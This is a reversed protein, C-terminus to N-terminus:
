KIRLYFLKEDIKPLEALAPLGFNKVAVRYNYVTTSDYNYATIPQINLYSLGLMSLRDVMRNLYNQLGQIQKSYGIIKRDKLWMPYQSKHMIDHIFKLRFEIERMNTFLQKIEHKLKQLQAILEIHEPCIHQAKKELDSWSKGKNFTLSMPANCTVELKNGTTM